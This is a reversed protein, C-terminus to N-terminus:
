LVLERRASTREQQTEGEDNGMEVIEVKEAQTAPEASVADNLLQKEDFHREADGHQGKGPGIMRPLHGFTINKLRSIQTISVIEIVKDKTENM